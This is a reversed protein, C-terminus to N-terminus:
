SVGFVIYVCFFRILWEEIVFWGRVWYNVVIIM